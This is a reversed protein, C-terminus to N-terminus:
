CKTPNASCYKGGWGDPARVYQRQGDRYACYDGTCCRPDVGVCATLSSLLIGYVISYVLAPLLKTLLKIKLM